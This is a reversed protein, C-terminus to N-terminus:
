RVGGTLLRELLARGPESMWAKSGIAKAVLKGDRGVLFATPTATIRYAVSTDGDPDLLVPVTAKHQDVWRAVAARTEQINVAYVALGRGGYERNLQEITSPL